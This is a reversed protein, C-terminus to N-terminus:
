SKKLLMRCKECIGHSVPKEGKVMVLIFGFNRQHWACEVQRQHHLLDLEVEQDHAEM